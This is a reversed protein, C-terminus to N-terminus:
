PSSNLPAVGGVAAAAAWVRTRVATVLEALDDAFTAPSRYATADTVGFAVLMLDAPDPSIRSLLQERPDTGTACSLGEARWAVPRGTLRALARATTAAVSEEGSTLGVGCVTSEGVALLRIPKGMGPVLGHHPPRAPPLRPVRRRPAAAQAIVLPLLGFSGVLRAAIAARLPAAGPFARQPDFAPISIKSQRPAGKVLDCSTTLM